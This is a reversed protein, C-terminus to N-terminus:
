NKYHSAQLDEILAALFRAAEGGTAARHDFTLSIPLIRHIVAKGAVAVVEESAKGIGIIAVTPPVIIPNAYRGAITGFNSLAITAGKLEEAPFAQNKAYTKFKEITERIEANTRNSIDKIVPVYLGETTDIALGINIEQMLQRSLSKGDFLANLSPEAHCAVAIARIIRLTMDQGAPWSQIDARDQLTIPVIEKHAIAM